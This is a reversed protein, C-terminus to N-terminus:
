KASIDANEGEGGRVGDAGLSTLDYAGGGKGPFEYLYPRDWPDLPLKSGTVYPGRWAAVGSPRAFLARLGEEQSPYRGVDLRFLDLGTALNEIQIRAVDAKAKTLYGIARPVVIGVLLSLIVLVVLLEVLTFGRRRRERRRRRRVDCPSRM